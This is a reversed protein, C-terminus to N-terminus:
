DDNCEKLFNLDKDKEVYIYNGNNVFCISKYKCYTCSLNTKDLIKPNIPYNGNLINKSANIMLNEALKSLCKFDNQNLVKAYHNFGKSTIGMGKIFDSNKYTQDFENIKDQSSITYGILKLNDKKIEEITKKPNHTIINKTISSHM